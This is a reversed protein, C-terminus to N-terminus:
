HTSHSNGIALSYWVVLVPQVFWVPRSTCPLNVPAVRAPLNCSESSYVKPRNESPFRTNACRDSRNAQLRGSLRRVWRLLPLPVLRRTASSRRLASRLGDRRDARLLSRDVRRVWRLDNKSALVTM